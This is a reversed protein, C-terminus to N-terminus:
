PGQGPGWCCSSLVLTNQVGHLCHETLVGPLTNPIGPLLVPPHINSSISRCPFVQSEQSCFGPSWFATGSAGTYNYIGWSATNMCCTPSLVGLLPAPHETYKICWPCNTMFVHMEPIPKQVEPQTQLCDDLAQGFCLLGWGDKCLAPQDLLIPIVFRFLLGIRHDPQQIPLFVLNSSGWMESVLDEEKLTLIPQSVSPLLLGKWQICKQVSLKEEIFVRHM